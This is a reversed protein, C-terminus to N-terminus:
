IFRSVFILLGVHICLVILHIIIVIASKPEDGGRQQVNNQEETVSSPKEIEISIYKSPPSKEPPIKEVFVKQPELVANESYSSKTSSVFDKLLAIKKLNILHNPKRIIDLM